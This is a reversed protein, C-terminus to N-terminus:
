KVAAASDGPVQASRLYELVWRAEEQTLQQNPMPTMFQALLDRAVPHKEVMEAPNLIMNMVYTPTRRSLVQGLPPGVYREAMKHCAACKLSFVDHGRGAMAADLEGVDVTTVPGIGNKMQSETLTAAASGSAPPSAAAGAAASESGSGGCASLVVLVLAGYAIWAQKRQMLRRRREMGTGGIGDGNVM